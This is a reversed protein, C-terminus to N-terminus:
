CDCRCDLASESSFGQGGVGSGQHSGAEIVEIEGQERRARLVKKDFKGVSTKPVEKIFSWREPIWWKAVRDALFSRIQEVTTGTGEKLVVCALPREDWREDPVGIVAAEIVEPHAMIANELEVTSIWEGGSKIVDKARDTIQIFGKEDITGVDGTRLWGDHFKEPTEDGYYAATIWPGRVEIEGVSKGDRPVVKDGDTVRLEVGHVVRGTRSRWDMEEEPKAGKPPRAVAALPSTETMGWAQIIRVNHHQEFREMLTRPVASGGCAIMRISSFDVPNTEAYRLIDNWIAPVAGSFTPREAAILKCLPEAQLFRSPMVFDSGALWGAYPLGWANAHFMPVIPLIRDMETLAFVAGSCIALSHLFTSRHSYVVGKPNGTTGSTYCMAAAAREDIDPWDFDPGEAAILEEYRLVDGLPTADGGGVVIFREVTKLDAAVRALLPVLSDDVIILRDEAHNIIYTLQDPFLRLNLTHLVAGMCPIALYSELHEQNNWCFTGVRDGPRIGLRSLAGALREARDAVERYSARRSSDGQFTIVESDCFIRRGHEYISNITLPRDQMTSLM